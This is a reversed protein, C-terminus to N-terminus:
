KKALERIKAEIEELKGGGLHSLRVNGERDIIFTHPIPSVGYDLHTRDRPDIAVPWPLAQKKYFERVQESTQASHNTMGIIVLDNGFMKQWERLTPFQAICPKCWTAWFDLLVIKGRLDELTKPESGIWETAQLRPAAKDLLTKPDVEYTAVEEGLEADWKTTALNIAISKATEGAFAIEQKGNGNFDAIAFDQVDVALTAGKWGDKTHRYLRVDGGLSNKREGRAVIEQKGDGDFDLLEIQRIRYHEPLDEILEYDWKGDVGRRIIALRARAIKGYNSHWGDGVVIDVKRDGDVDGAAISSTGRFAPLVIRKQGDLLIADGISPQSDGYPRGVIIRPKGDGLVDAAAVNPGMRINAVKEVTWDSAGRRAVCIDVFYKESFYAFLIEPRKDGDLDVIELSTTDPRESKQRYIETPTWSTPGLPQYVRLQVDTQPGEKKNYGPLGEGMVLEGKGDGDMDAVEMANPFNELTQSTVIKTGKAITLVKTDGNYTVLEAKKDGDLDGAAILYVTPRKPPAKQEAAPKQTTKPPPTQADAGAIATATLVVSALTTRVKM